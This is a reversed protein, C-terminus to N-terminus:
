KGTTGIRHHELIHTEPLDHDYVAVEDIRGKFGGGIVLPANVRDPGVGPVNTNGDYRVGNLYMRPSTAGDCTFVLHNYVGGTVGVTMSHVYQDLEPAHFREFGILIASGPANIFSLTGEPGPGAPVAKNFLNGGMMPDFTDVLVWMEFAYPVAGPLDFTNPVAIQATADTLELASDADGMIAGAAGFTFNGTVAGDNGHGSADHAVSGSAEGLRLYVLPADALVSKEYASGGPADSAADAVAADNAGPLPKDLGAILQCGLGIGAAGAATCAISRLKM